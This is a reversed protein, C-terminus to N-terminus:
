LTLKRHKLMKLPPRATLTLFSQNPWPRNSAELWFCLQLKNAWSSSHWWRRILYFSHNIKNMSNQYIINCQCSLVHYVQQFHHKVYKGGGGRSRNWGSGSTGSLPGGSALYCRKMKMKKMQMASNGDSFFLNGVLKQEGVGGLNKVVGPHKSKCAHPHWHGVALWIAQITLGPSWLSSLM